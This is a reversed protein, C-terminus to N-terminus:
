IHSHTLVKYGQLECWFLQSKHINMGRFITNEYTNVWVWIYKPGYVPPRQYLSPGTGMATGVAGQCLASPRSCGIKSFFVCIEFCWGSTTFVFVWFIRYLSVNGTPDMYPIYISVNPTYQHYIYGYIGYMSGIPLSICLNCMYIYIYM